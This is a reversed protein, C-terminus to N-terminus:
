PRELAIYFRVTPLPVPDEGELVGNVLSLTINRKPWQARPLALDSSAYVEVKSARAPDIASGDSSGIRLRMNGNALRQVSQMRLRKSTIVLSRNGSAAIAVIGGLGAPPQLQQFNNQGWCILRGDSRLAMSHNAGSAIAVINTAEPPVDTQGFANQGWTFVRGDNRLGVSHYKGGAVAVYNSIGFPPQCQGFIDNGWARVTGNSLLAISHEFGAAIAMVNTANPPVLSQNFNANGWAAITGDFRLALTHNGGAAISRVNALGAPVDTQNFNNAGWVVVTGNSTLAVSHQVGASIRAANVLTPPPGAQGLSNNGWGFVRGNRMLVLDHYAGAAIAAVDTLGSPVTIDVNESGNFVPNEGWQVVLSEGPSLATVALTAVASTVAGYQNTLVVLFNGADNTQVNNIRYSPQTAGAINTNNTRWQYGLANDASVNFTVSGGALVSQSRPQSTIVPIPLATLTAVISTVVGFANSVIVRYNGSHNTTVPSIVYSPNVAGPINTSSRQWQYVLPASGGAAVTFTATGGVPVEHSVPQQAIFAPVNVTLLANTSQATGIMNSLYLSYNGAHNTQVSSITYSANTANPIPVGDHRWQVLLPPSGSFSSTFTTSQGLLVARPTPHATIRPPAMRLALSHTAGGAIAIVNTTGTPVVTQNFLNDGWCFITRDSRLAICHRGGAAIAVVNAHLPPAPINGWVAITGNNRLAISFDDGGAVAVVGSLNSPVNTQGGNNAGWAVVTGNARVALSHNAGVAIATVIGLNGPPMAQGQNNGGWGVVVGNSRLILSHFEGAAIRMVDTLGPPVNTATGDGWAVVRGNNRLALSHQAGGAVAVVNSLGSPPTAKGVTNDGWGTVTGNDLVALNHYHGAAIAIVNSLPPPNTLGFGSTGWAVPFGASYAKLGLALYAFLSARLIWRSRYM